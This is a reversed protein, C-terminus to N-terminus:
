LKRKTFTHVLTIGAVVSVNYSEGSSTQPISIVEDCLKTTSTRLGAGEAGLVWVVKEPVDLQYLNKKPNADLGFVWFGMDKLEKLKNGLHTQEVPVHEVGGAAVKHVTPTLGVQRESPVLVAAVETLWATRLISGLNHPDEVHDLALVTCQKASEMHRWNAQPSSSAFAAMGQHSQALKKLEAENKVEIKPRGLQKIQQFDQTREYGPLVWLKEIERPRVRFAEFIAHRGVIVRLSSDRTPQKM